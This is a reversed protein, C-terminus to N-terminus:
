TSHPPLDWPHGHLDWCQDKPHTPRGCHECKLRDRDDLSTGLRGGHGRFASGGRGGQSSSSVFASKEVISSINM